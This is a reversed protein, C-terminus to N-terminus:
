QPRLSSAAEAVPPGRRLINCVPGIHPPPAEASLSDPVPAAEPPTHPGDGAIGSISTTYGIRRAVDTENGENRLTSNEWPVMGAYGTRPRLPDLGVDATDKEGVVEQAFYRAAEFTQSEATAGPEGTGLIKAPGRRQPASKRSTAECLLAAYGIQVSAPSSIRWCGGYRAPPWKRRRQRTRWWVSNGGSRLSNRLRPIRPSLCSRARVM